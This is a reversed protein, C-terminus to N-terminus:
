DAAPHIVSDFCRGFTKLGSGKRKAPREERSSWTARRRMCGRGALNETLKWAMNLSNQPRGEGVPSTMFFFCLSLNSSSSFRMGAQLSNNDVRHLTLTLIDVKIICSSRLYHYKFEVLDTYTWVYLKTHLEVCKRQKPMHDWIWCIFLTSGM